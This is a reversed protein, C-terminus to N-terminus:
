NTIALMGNPLVSFVFEGVALTQLIQANTITLKGQNIYAVKTEGTWFALERATFTAMDGTRKLVTNGDASVTTIRDGVAVGYVPVGVGGQQENFLYGTKIYQNTETVYSQFGAQGQKLSTVTEGHQFEQLVGQASATIQNTVQERYEGFDSIALYDNKLEQRIQEMGQRVTHATKIILSKLSESQGSIDSSDGMTEQRTQQIVKQANDATDELHNLAYTLQESMQYLWSHLANLRDTDGGSASPPPPLLFAM